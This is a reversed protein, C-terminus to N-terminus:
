RCAGITYVRGTPSTGEAWTADIAAVTADTYPLAHATGNLTTVIVRAPIGDVHAACRPFRAADAPTWAPAAHHPIPLMDLSAPADPAAALVAAAAAVGLATVKILRVTIKLHQTNM